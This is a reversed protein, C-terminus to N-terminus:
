KCNCKWASQELCMKPCKLGNQIITLTSCSILLPGIPTPIYVSIFYRCSHSNLTVKAGIWKTKRGMLSEQSTPDNKSRLRPTNRVVCPCGYKVWHSSSYKSINNDWTLPLALTQLRWGTWETLDHAGATLGSHKRVPSFYGDVPYFGSAKPRKEIAAQIAYNVLFPDNRDRSVFCFIHHRIVAPPTWAFLSASWYMSTM